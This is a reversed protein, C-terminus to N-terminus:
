VDSHQGFLDVVKVADFRFLLKHIPGWFNLSLCRVLILFGHFHNGGHQLTEFCSIWDWFSIGQDFYPSSPCICGFKYFVKPKQFCRFPMREMLVIPTFPETYM